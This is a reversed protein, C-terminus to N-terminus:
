NKVSELGLPLSSHAPFPLVLLQVAALLPSLLSANAPTTVVTLRLGRAVLLAALDLLPLAHGQAPFPVVLVHPASRAPARTTEM